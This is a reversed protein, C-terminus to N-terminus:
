VEKKFFYFLLATHVICLAGRSTGRVSLHVAPRRKLRPTQPAPTHAPSPGDEGLPRSSGRWAPQQKM